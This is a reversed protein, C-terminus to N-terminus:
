KLFLFQILWLLGAVIAVPFIFLLIGVVIKKILLWIDQVLMLFM